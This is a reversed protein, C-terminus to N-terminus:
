KARRRLFGLGVLALGALALSGPEPVTLEYDGSFNGTGVTHLKIVQTLSYTSLAVGDYSHGSFAGGSNFTGIVGLANSLDFLGAGYYSQASVTSFGTPGSLTGGFAGSVPGPGSFGTESFMLVLDHTGGSSAVVNISNLDMVTPFSVAPKTAGVTVAVSYPSSVGGYSATIAGITADIDGVGNDTIVVAAGGDISISLTPIAHAVSVAGLLLAAIAASSISTLKM